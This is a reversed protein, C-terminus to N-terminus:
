FPKTFTCSLSSFQLRSTKRLQCATCILLKNVTVIVPLHNKNVITHLVGGYPYGFRRHWIHIDAKAIMLTTPSIAIGYVGNSANWYFSYLGGGSSGQFFMKRTRLDKVYFGFPNFTLSCWNDHVLKYVFLLNHSAKPVLLVDNLRFTANNTCILAYGIHSICKGKGDGVFLQDIGSYLITYNLTSPDPTVHYSAGSNTLWYRPLAHSTM